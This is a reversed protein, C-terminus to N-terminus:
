KAFGEKLKKFLLDKDMDVAVHILHGNSVEEIHGYEDVTFYKDEITFKKPYASYLVPMADYMYGKDMNDALLVNYYNEVAKVFSQYKRTKKLYDIEEKTLGVGERADLPFITVDLASGLIRKVAKPDNYFNYETKNDSNFEKLGGGMVYVHSIHDEIHPMSMALAALNTLPGTAIYTINNNEYVFKLIDDYTLTIDDIVEDKNLKYKKAIEDSVDCLGDEGQYDSEGIKKGDLSSYAGAYIETNLGFYKNLLYSNFYVNEFLSNGYIALLKKPKTTVKSMLFIAVADDVGTDCDLIITEDRDEPIEIVEPEKSPSFTLLAVVVITIIIIILVILFKIFGNNNSKERRDTWDEIAKGNQLKKSKVYKKNREVIKSGSKKDKIDIKRSGKKNKAVDNKSLIEKAKSNKKSKNGKTKIVKSM